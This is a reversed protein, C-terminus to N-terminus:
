DTNAHVSVEFSLTRPDTTSGGIQEYRLRIRTTGLSRGAFMMLQVQTAAEPADPDITTTTTPEWTVTPAPTATPAATTTTTTSTSALLAPDERFESSLPVVMATDVPELVWRWGRTPEAPLVLEFRRGLGVSVLQAPDTFVAPTLPDVGTDPSQSTTTSM